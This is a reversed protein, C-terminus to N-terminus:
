SLSLKEYLAVLMDAAGDPGMALAVRMNHRTTGRVEAHGYTPDPWSYEEWRTTAWRDANLNLYMAEVAVILSDMARSLVWAHTDMAADGAFMGIFHNELRAEYEELGPIYRKVPSPIDGLITEHLDHALFIRAANDEGMDQLAMVGAATHQAVTYEIDAHGNFRPIRALTPVLESLEPTYSEPDGPYFLGSRTQIFSEM